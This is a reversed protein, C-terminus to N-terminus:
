NIWVAFGIFNGQFISQFRGWTEDSTVEGKELFPVMGSGQAWLVLDFLKAETFVRHLNVGTGVGPFRWHPILKKGDLITEGETLFEKWSSIMEPTLKEGTVSTQKSNPIWELSDDTEAEIAAWSQRSCQIVKHLHESASVWYEPKSIPFRITHILAILDTFQYKDPIEPHAAIFPTAPKAFFIQGAANFLDTGDCGLGLDCLVTLLHSYGLLWYGDGLDFNVKFQADKEGEEEESTRTYYRYLGLLTQDPKGDADFDLSIHALDVPVTFPQERLRTLTTTTASLDAELQAFVVGFKEPTISEPHPNDPVPLRLFPIGSSRAPESHLGYHYLGQGLKEISRVFQLLGTAFISEQSDPEHSSYFAIGEEFKGANLYEQLSSGPASASSFFLAAICLLRPLPHMFRVM